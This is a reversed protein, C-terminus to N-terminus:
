AGTIWAPRHKRIRKEITRDHPVAKKRDKLLAIVADRASGLSPFPGKLTVEEDFHPYVIEGWIPLPKTGGKSTAAPEPILDDSAVPEAALPPWLAEVAAREVEIGVALMDFDEMIFYARNSVPEIRQATTWWSRDIHDTRKVAGGSPWTYFAGARAQVRGDSLPPLLAELTGARMVAGRFPIWVSGMTLGLDLDAPPPAAECRIHKKKVRAM